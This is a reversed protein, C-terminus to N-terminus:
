VEEGYKTRLQNSATFMFDKPGRLGRQEMWKLVRVRYADWEIDVGGSARLMELKRQSVPGEHRTIADPDYREKEIEENELALWATLSLSALLPNNSMNFASQISYERDLDTLYTHLDDRLKPECYLGTSKPSDMFLARSIWLLNHIDRM